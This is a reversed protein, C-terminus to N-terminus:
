AAKATLTHHEDLDQIICPDDMNDLAKLERDLKKLITDCSEASLARISAPDLLHEKLRQRVYDCYKLVQARQRKLCDEELSSVILRLEQAADDIQQRLRDCESRLPALRKAQESARRTHIISEPLAEEGKKRHLEGAGSTRSLNKRLGDFQLMHNRIVGMLDEMRVYLGEHEHQLLKWENDGFVDLERLKESMFPSLWVDNSYERPLGRKGDSRGRWRLHWREFWGIRIPQPCQIYNTRKKRLQAKDAAVIRKGFIRTDEVKESPNM